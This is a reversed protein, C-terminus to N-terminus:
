FTQAGVAVFHWHAYLSSYSNPSLSGSCSSSHWQRTAIFSLLMLSMGARKIHFPPTSHSCHSYLYLQLAAVVLLLLLFVWGGEIEERM